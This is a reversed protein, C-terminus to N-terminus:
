KNKDFDFMVGVRDAQEMNVERGATAPSAGYDAREM